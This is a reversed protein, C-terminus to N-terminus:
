EEQVALSMLRSSIALQERKALDADIKFRLRNGVLVLEVIGGESAFGPHEGITLVGDDTFLAAFEGANFQDRHYAYDIVLQSCADRVADAFSYPSYCAVLTILLFLLKKM